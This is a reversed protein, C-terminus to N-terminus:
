ERTFSASRWDTSNGSSDKARVQVQYDGRGLEDIAVKESIPIVAKGPNVYGDAPRFGSDSKVEGTKADVVRMEFQM